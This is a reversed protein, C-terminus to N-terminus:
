FNRTFQVEYVMDDIDEEGEGFYATIKGKTYIFWRWGEADISESDFKWGNAKNKVRGHIYDYNQRNTIWKFSIHDSLYYLNAWYGAKGSATKGYSYCYIKGDKYSEEFEFAYDKLLLLQKAEDLRLHTMNLCDTYNLQQAILQVSFLLTTITLIFSQRKSKNSM